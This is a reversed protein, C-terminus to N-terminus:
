GHVEFGLKTVYYLGDPELTVTVDARGNPDIYYMPVCTCPPLDPSGFSFMNPLREFEDDLQYDGSKVMAVWNPQSLLSQGDKDSGPYICAGYLEADGARVATLFASAVALPDHGPCAGPMAADPAVPTLAVTIMVDTEPGVSSCIAKFGARDVSMIQWSIMQGVLSGGLARSGSLGQLDLHLYADQATMSGTKMSAPCRYTTPPAAKYASVRGTTFSSETLGQANWDAVVNMKAQRGGGPRDTRWLISALGSAIRVPYGSETGLCNDPDVSHVESCVTVPAQPADILQLLIAGSWRVRKVTVPPLNSDDGVTTTAADTPAADTPASDTPATDADVADTSLPETDTSKTRASATTDSPLPSGVTTSSVEGVTNARTSASGCGSIVVVAFIM